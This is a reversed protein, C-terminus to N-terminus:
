KILNMKNTLVIGNSEMRCIYIGSSLQSANFEATHTGANQYSNVITKVEKGLINYITIKVFSGTPIDYSIKTTPNFPNPFNNHLKIEKCSLNKNGKNTNIFRETGVNPNETQFQYVDSWPGNGASNFARVKWSYQTAYTLLESGIQLETPSITASVTKTSLYVEVLNEGQYYSLTIEYYEANTVESWNLEALLSYVTQGNEPLLISPPNEPPYIKPDYDAYVFASSLSVIIVFTVLTIKKFLNKM